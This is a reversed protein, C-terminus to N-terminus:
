YRHTLNALLEPIKEGAPGIIQQGPFPLRSEPLEEINVYFVQADPHTCRLLSAAPEVVLSTGVVVVIDAKALWEMSTDYGYIGEGFLVIDPRLQTHTHPDCQGIQIDGTWDSRYNEGEYGHPRLHLISGHLHMITKSGAREHLDDINQTIVRVPFVGELGAIAYHAANPEVALMERRRENHFSLFGALDQDIIYSELYRANDQNNWVTSAGRFTAIGSEASLGAGSFIIVNPKSKGDASGHGRQVSQQQHWQRIFNPLQIYMILVQLSFLDVGAYISWGSDAVTEWRLVNFM